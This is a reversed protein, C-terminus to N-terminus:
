EREGREPASGGHVGGGLEMAMKNGASWAREAMVAHVVVKAVGHQVHPVGSRDQKVAPAVQRRAVGGGCWPSVHGPWVPGSRHLGCSGVPARPGGPARLWEV